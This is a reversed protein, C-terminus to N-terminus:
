DIQQMVNPPLPWHGQVQGCHACIDLDLYDGWGSRSINLNNPVYGEYRENDLNIINMDRSKANINMIRPSKCRFCPQRIVLQSIPPYIQNSSPNYQVEVNYRVKCNDTVTVITNGPHALTQYVQDVYFNTIQGNELKCALEDFGIVPLPVNQQAFIFPLSM